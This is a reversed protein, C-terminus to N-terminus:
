FDGFVKVPCMASTSTSLAAAISYGGFKQEPLELRKLSQLVARLDELWVQLGPSSDLQGGCSRIATCYATTIALALTAQQAHVLSRARATNLVSAPRSVPVGRRRPLPPAAQHLLHLWRQQAAARHMALVAFSSVLSKLYIPSTTIFSVRSLGRAATEPASAAPPLRFTAAGPPLCPVELRSEAWHLTCFISDASIEAASGTSFAELEFSVVREAPICLSAAQEQADPPFELSWSFAGNSGAVLYLIRRTADPHTRPMEPASAPVCAPYSQEAAMVLVAVGQQMLRTSGAVQAAVMAAVMRRGYQLTNVVYM